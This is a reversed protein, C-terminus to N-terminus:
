IQKFRSVFCLIGRPYIKSTYDTKLLDRKINLYYLVILFVRIVSNKTNTCLVVAPIKEGTYKTGGCNQKLNKIFHQLQSISETYM